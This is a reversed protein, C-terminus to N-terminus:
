KILEEILKNFLFIIFYNLINKLKKCKKQM